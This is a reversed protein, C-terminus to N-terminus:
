FPLEDTGELQRELVSVRANLELLEGYMKNIRLEFQRFVDDYAEQFGLDRGKILGDQYGADYGSDNFQKM